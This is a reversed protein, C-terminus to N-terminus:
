FRAAPVLAGLNTLTTKLIDTQITRLLQAHTATGQSLLAETAGNRRHALLGVAVVGPPVPRMNYTGGIRDALWLAQVLRTSLRTGGWTPPTLLDYRPGPAPDPADPVTALGTRNPDGVLLWIRQWDGSMDMRAIASLLRGTTLPEGPPLERAALGVADSLAQSVDTPNKWWMSPPGAAVPPRTTASQAAVRAAAAAAQARATHAARAERIMPWWIPVGALLLVVGAGALLGGQRAQVPDRLDLTVAFLVAGTAVAVGGLTILPSLLVTRLPLREGRRAALRRRALLALPVVLPLALGGVLSVRDETSVGFDQYVFDDDVVAADIVEGAIGTDKRAVWGRQAEGDLYWNANCSIHGLDYGGCDYPLTATVPTRVHHIYAADVAPAFWGFFFVLAVVSLGLRWAFRRLVRGEWGEV